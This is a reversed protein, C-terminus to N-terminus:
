EKDLIDMSFSSKTSPSQDINHTFWLVAPNSSDVCPKRTHPKRFLDFAVGPQPMTTKPSLQKPFVRGSVKIASRCGSLQLSRSLGLCFRRAILTSLDVIHVCILISSFSIVRCSGFTGKPRASGYCGGCLINEAALFIPKTTHM